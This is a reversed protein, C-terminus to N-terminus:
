RKGRGSESCVVVVVVWSHRPPILLLPLRRRRYWDAGWTVNDLHDVEIRASEVKSGLVAVAIANGVDDEDDDVGEEEVRCAEEGPYVALM